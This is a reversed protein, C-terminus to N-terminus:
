WVARMTLCIYFYVYWSLSLQFCTLPKIPVYSNRIKSVYYHEPLISSMEIIEFNVIRLGNLPSWYWSNQSVSYQSNNSYSSQFNYLSQFNKFASSEYDSFFVDSFKSAWRFTIVIILRSTCYKGKYLHVGFDTSTSFELFSKVFPYVYNFFVADWQKLKFSSACDHYDYNTHNIIFYIINNLIKM